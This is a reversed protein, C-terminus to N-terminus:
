KVLEIKHTAMSDGSRVTVFYIGSPVAEGRHEYRKTNWIAKHRGPSVNGDAIKAVERGNIDIITVSVNGYTENYYEIAIASNFPNPSAELISLNQPRFDENEAVELYTGFITSDILNDDIDYARYIVYNITMDLIIYHYVAAYVYIYPWDQLWHDLASGGGGSIIYAVGDKDGREYDHTHGAFVMDVEYYEYLPVLYNRINEEGDYGPSDWGESYPPHHHLMILWPAAQAATSSLENYLWNYQDTLPIYPRNTDLFVLYAPGYRAAFWHENDPQSFYDDFYYSDNEHNGISVYSPTNKLLNRAPHLYETVWQDYVSGTSVVDGLNIALDANRPIMREVVAEHTIYDTRNDGWIVIRVPSDDPPNTNFYYEPGYLTTDGVRVAYYYKTNPMLGTIVAEHIRASPVDMSDSFHPTEGWLVKGEIPTSTEWMITMETYKPNQIYPGARLRRSPTIDEGVVVQVNDFSAGANAYCTMGINGAPFTADAASLLLTGDQFVKISDGICSVAIQTFRDDLLFVDTRSALTTFVGGVCKEIRRFPGGNAIDQVCQFRYYNSQNQARFLVGIGDDDSSSWDLKLTYDTWSPDGGMIQTGTYVSYENLTTYINSNQRLAGAVIQWDSPGSSFPEIDYITWEASITPLEFCDEFLTQGVLSFVFLLTLAACILKM